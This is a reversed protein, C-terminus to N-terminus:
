EVPSANGWIADFHDSVLKSMGAGVEVVFSQARGLDKLSAGVLLLGANHIIYRDHLKGKGVVRVELKGGFERNFAKLETSFGTGQIDSTLLKISKAGECRSLSELVSSAIYPDCFRLAGSLNSLIQDVRRRGSFAKQPNIFTVADTSDFLEQEGARMLKWYESGRVRKRIVAGKENRLITEVRHRSIHIRHNAELQRSIAYASLIGEGGRLAEAALICFVQLRENELLHIDPLKAPREIDDVM